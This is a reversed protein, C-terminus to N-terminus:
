RNLGLSGGIRGALEKLSRTSINLAQTDPFYALIGAPSVRAEHDTAVPTVQLGQKIFLRQAREMHLASTVLLINKINRGRLLATTMAANQSTTLSQEELILASPPVGLDEIFYAMAKAESVQGLKLDSGGTLVVVPAKGARYLRSAHWVRDASSYLDGYPYGVSPSGVGGGLVVIAEAGPIKELVLAPFDSEMYNELFYSFFPTSCIWLFIFATFVLIIGWKFWRFVIFLLALALLVLSLFLPSVFLLM